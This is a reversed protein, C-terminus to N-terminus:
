NKIKANLVNYYDIMQSIDGAERFHLGNKKAYKRIASAHGDLVALVDAKKRRIAIAEAKPELRIFYTQVKSFVKKEEVKVALQVNGPAGSMDDIRLERRMLLQAPGNKSLVEFYDAGIEVQKRQQNIFIAYVFRSDGMVIENIKFPESIFFSDQEIVVQMEKRYLDLRFSGNTKLSDDFAMYGQQWEDDLFPDLWFDKPQKETEFYAISIGTKPGFMYGFKPQAKASLGTVISIFVLLIKFYLLKMHINKELKLGPM